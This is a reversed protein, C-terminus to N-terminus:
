RKPWRMVKRKMLKMNITLKQNRHLPITGARWGRNFQNLSQFPSLNNWTRISRSIEEAPAQEYDNDTLQENYTTANPGACRGRGDGHSWLLPTKKFNPNRSPRRMPCGPGRDAFEPCSCCVGRYLKREEVIARKLDRRIIKEHTKVHGTRTSRIIKGGEGREVKRLSRWHRIQHETWGKNLWYRM